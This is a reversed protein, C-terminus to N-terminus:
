SEHYLKKMSNFILQTKKASITNMFEVPDNPDLRKEENDLIIQLSCMRYKEDMMQSVVNRKEEELRNIKKDVILKM